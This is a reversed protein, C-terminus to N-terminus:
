KYKRRDKKKRSLLVEKTYAGYGKFSMHKLTRVSICDADKALEFSNVAVVIYIDKDNADELILSFLDKIERIMDISSGSDLADLLFWIEKADPHTRIMRGAKVVFLEGFNNHLQEGESSVFNRVLMDTQGFFDYANMANHGGDAHNSYKLYPIDNKKLYSEIGRLLTTKGSGNCGVLATVGPELTIEKKPFLRFGMDYPDQHIPITKPM